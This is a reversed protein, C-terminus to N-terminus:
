RRTEHQPTFVTVHQTDNNTVSVFGWIRHANTEARLVLDVARDGAPLQIRPLEMRAFAPRDPICPPAPCVPLGTLTLTGLAQRSGDSRVAEVAVRTGNRLDFDYVRLTARYREDVPVNVIRIEGSTDEARVVPIETGLDKESRSRDVAHLSYALEHELGRPVHLFAGGDEGREFFNGRRRPPIATPIPLVPVDPDAWFLPETAIYIPSDNRVIIDSHWESGHGGPGTFNVPFLVREYDAEFGAGYRFGDEITWSQGNAVVTVDVLGSGEPVVAAIRESDWRVSPAPTSGFTVTLCNPMDCFEFPAGAILVENGHQGFWPSVSPQGDRVTITERRYEEGGVYVAIVYEGPELRGVPIREGWSSGVSIPPEPAGSLDIRIVNGSRSLLPNSPGGIGAWGGGVVIEVLETSRPQPPDVYVLEVGALLQVAPLLLTLAFVIKKM